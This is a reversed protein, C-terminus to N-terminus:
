HLLVRELATTDFIDGLVGVDAVAVFNAMGGFQAPQRDTVVEMDGPYQSLKEILEAVTM